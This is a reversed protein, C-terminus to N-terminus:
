LNKLFRDLYDADNYLHAVEVEDKTKEALQWMRNVERKLFVRAFHPLWTRRATHYAQTFQIKSDDYYHSSSSITPWSEIINLLRNIDNYLLGAEDESCYEVKIQLFNVHSVLTRLVRFDITGSPPNPMQKPPIESNPVLEWPPVRGAEELLQLYRSFEMDEAPSWLWHKGENWVLARGNPIPSKGPLRWLNPAYFAETSGGVGAYPPGRSTIWVINDRSKTFHFPHADTNHRFKHLQPGSANGSRYLPWFTFQTLRSLMKTPAHFTSKVLSRIKIRM